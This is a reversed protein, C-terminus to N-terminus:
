STVEAEYTLGQGVLGGVYADLERIAAGHEDDTKLGREWVTRNIRDVAKSEDAFGLQRLEVSAHALATNLDGLRTVISSLDSIRRGHEPITMSTTSTM